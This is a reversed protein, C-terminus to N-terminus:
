SPLAPPGTSRFPPGRSRLTLPLSRTAGWTIGSVLWWPLVAVPAPLLPAGPLNDIAACIEDRAHDAPGEDQDREWDPEPTVPGAMATTAAQASLGAMCLAPALLTQLLLVAIILGSPCKGPKYM